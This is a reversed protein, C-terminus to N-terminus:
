YIKWHFSKVGRRHSKVILYSFYMIAMTETKGPGSATDTSLGLELQRLHGTFEFKSLMSRCWGAVANFDQNDWWQALEKRNDAFEIDDIVEALLERVGSGEHLNELYLFHEMGPEWGIRRSFIVFIHQRFEESNRLAALRRIQSLLEGASDMLSVAIVLNVVTKVNLGQREFLMQRLEPLLETNGIRALSKAAISRLYPYSETRYVQLLAAASRPDPYAGLTFIATERWWSDRDEVEALLEPLLEPRPFFFLSRLMDDKPDIMPNKLRRRIEGTALGSATYSVQLLLLKEKLMNSTSEGLRDLLLFAKLNGPSLFLKHMGRLSVAGEDSLFVACYITMALALVSLMIFGASYNNPLHLLHFLQSDACRGAALGVIIAIVAAAFNLISTFGIKNEPPISRLVLRGVLLTLMTQLFMMITGILIWVVWPTAPPLFMLLLSDASLLGCGIVLLPRGGIRDSFIKMLKGALIMAGTSLMAYVFIWTMPMGALNRFLPLVFSSLIIIAICGCYMVVAPICETKRAEEVLARVANSSRSEIREHVAIRRLRGAAISNIIIGAASLLLLGKIDNLWGVALLTFSVLNAFLKAFNMAMSIKSLVRGSEEAPVLIKELAQKMPWAFNRFLSFGTYAGLLVWLALGPYDGHLWGALFYPLCCLGRALWLWWYATILRLGGFFSPVLLIAIGTIYVTAALYGLQTNNAGLQMALLVILTDALFNYGIENIIIHETYYRLGAVRDARSVAINNM